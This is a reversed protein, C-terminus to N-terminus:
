KAEVKVLLKMRPHIACRVEATGTKPFPITSHGGPNQRRIDFEMGPTSSFVNHVFEDQNKFTLTDGAHITIGSQSFARDKQIVPHDAAALSLAATLLLPAARL